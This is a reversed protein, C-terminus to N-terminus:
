GMSARFLHPRRGGTKTHCARFGPFRSKESVARKAKRCTPDWGRNRTRSVSILVLGLILQSHRGFESQREAGYSSWRRCRCSVHSLGKKIRPRFTTHTGLAIQFGERGKRICVGNLAVGVEWFDRWSATDYRVGSTNIEMVCLRDAVAFILVSALDLQHVLTSVRSGRILRACQQPRRLALLPQVKLSRWPTWCAKVLNGSTRRCQRGWM